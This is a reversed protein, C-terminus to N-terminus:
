GREPIARHYNEEMPPRQMRGKKTEAERRRLGDGRTVGWVNGEKRESGMGVRGEYSTLRTKHGGYLKEILLSRLGQDWDSTMSRIGRARELVRRMVDPPNMADVVGGHWSLGTGPCAAGLAIDIEM